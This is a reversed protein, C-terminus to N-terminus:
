EFNKLVELINVEKGGSRPKSRYRFANTFGWNYKNNFSIALFDIKDKKKQTYTSYCFQLVMVAECIGGFNVILSISNNSCVQLHNSSVNLWRLESQATLLGNIDKLQNNDLRLIQLEM